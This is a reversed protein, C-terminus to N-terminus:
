RHTEPKQITKYTDWFYLDDAYMISISESGQRSIMTYRGNIKEPFLAMGKDTAAHGYLTRINFSIFDRTEIIAPRIKKGDYATYTGIYNTEGAESFEVFRVDEMGGLEAASVPFIVRSGLVTEEDFSFSYNTM